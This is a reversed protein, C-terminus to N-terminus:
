SEYWGELTGTCVIGAGSGIMSIKIDTKAPLVLPLTFHINDNGELIMGIDQFHFLSATYEGEDDSTTKLTFRAWRSATTSAAGWHWDTLYATKGLPVTWISQLSKNGGIAIYSYIPTNALHRLEVNGVAQATTGATVTHFGNIRLIDTAITPVVTTGDLTVVEVQEAYTADLYHIEVTRIGTGAPNIGGAGSDQDSSSYLELGAAGAPFVYSGGVEWLDEEAAGVASNYGLARFYDHASITGEAIDYAYPMASVRPKNDVHKVGYAVGNEDSLQVSGLLGGTAPLIELRYTDDGAATVRLPMGGFMTHAQDIPM